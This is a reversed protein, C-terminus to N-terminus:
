QQKQCESYFTGNAAALRGLCQRPDTVRGAVTFDFAQGKIVLAYRGPSIEFNPDKSQVEYMEPNDKIPATRYPFSVNRIVWNEDTKSIVPKGSSDFNMAQEIKAVVRVDVQDPTASGPAERRFVVFKLNGDPVITRSAAMIVASVAVRLDPARGQLAELEYLKGASIAYVGFSAPLLQAPKPLATETPAAERQVQNKNMEQLAVVPAALKDRAGFQGSRQLFTAAIALLIGILLLFRWPATFRGRTPGAAPDSESHASLLPHQNRVPDKDEVFVSVPAQMPHITSYSRDLQRAPLSFQPPDLAVLPRQLEQDKKSHAEVGQIAVELAATLRTIESADEGNFQERLKQRALEYIAGRLQEPDARVADITRALVLAFEVEPYTATLEQLARRDPPNGTM